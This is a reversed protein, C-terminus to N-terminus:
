RRTLVPARPVRVDLVRWSKPALTNLVTVVSELKQALQSSDGMRVVGAPFIHLQIEGDPTVALQVTVTRVSEPLHAAVKMADRGEADLDTGPAGAPALGDVSPMTAPREPVHELVRGTGDVVAWMGGAAPTSAAPTRETVAVRITAPWERTAEATAVWPLREIQKAISGTSVDILQPKDNLGTATLVSEHSTRTAGTVLVRDVDLMPSRTAGVVSLLVVIVAVSAVLVKLRRRGEDRMVEIRRRKIRPDIRPGATATHVPTPSPDPRTPRVPRPAPKPAARPAAKPRSKPQPQRTPQPERGAAAPKPPAPPGNRGQARGAHEAARASKRASAAPPPEPRTRGQARGAHEAARADGRAAPAGPQPEPRTRGQPRQVVEAARADGGGATLGPRRPPDVTERTATRTALRGDEGRRAFRGRKPPAPPGNRGQARGAHEAARADGGTAASATRRPPDVVPLRVPTPKAVAGKAAAAPKVPTPKVPRPLPGRTDTSM